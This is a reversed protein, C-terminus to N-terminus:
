NKPRRSESAPRAKPCDSALHGVQRCRFCAGAARLQERESDTLKTLRPGSSYSSRAPSMSRRTTPSRGRSPGPTPARGRAPRPNHTQLAGLDMPDDHRKDRPASFSRSSFSPIHKPMFMQTDFRHALDRIGHWTDIDEIKGTLLEQIKSKLGFWFTFKLTAADIGPIYSILRQFESAYDLVSRTQVLSRLAIRAKLEPLPDGLSREMADAFEDFTPFGGATEDNYGSQKAHEVRSQFWQQAPGTLLTSVALVSSHNLDANNCFLWTRARNLFPGCEKKQKGDYTGPSPVKLRNQPARPAHFNAAVATFASATASITALFPQMLVMFQQMAQMNVPAPEPAAQSVPNGDGQAAAQAAAMAAAQAAAQAADLAAPDPAIPAVLGGGFAPNAPDIGDM